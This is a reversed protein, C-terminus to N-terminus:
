GGHRIAYIIMAASAIVGGLIIGALASRVFKLM